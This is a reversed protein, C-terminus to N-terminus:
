ARRVEVFGLDQEVRTARFGNLAVNFCHYSLSLTLCVACKQLDAPLLICLGGGYV